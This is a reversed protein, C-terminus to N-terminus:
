ESVDFKLMAMRHLQVSMGVSNSLAPDLTALPVQYRSIQSRLPSGFVSNSWSTTLM